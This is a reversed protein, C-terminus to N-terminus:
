KQGNGAPLPVAARGWRGRQMETDWGAQGRRPAMGHSPCVADEALVALRVARKWSPGVRRNQPVAPGM